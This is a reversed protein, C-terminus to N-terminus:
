IFFLIVKSIFMMNVCLSVAPVVVNPCKIKVYNEKKCISLLLLITTPLFYRGQVGAVSMKGVGTWELYLGTVVLIDMGLALVVMWTKEKWDLVQKNNEIFISALLIIIYLIIYGVPVTISLWGMYQGIFNFTYFEGNVKFDNDLVKLYNLPNSIIGSLQESSNVGASELYKEASENTYRRTCINLVLMSGCCIVLTLVALIIIEKKPMEKKHKPIILAIGMLPLYTIKSLGVFASLILFIIKEYKLIEEKKFALYLVYSIFLIITANMLSDASFATAQQMMMPIMLYTTLLIKGFPIKKIAYYGLILVIIFNVLRALLLGVFINLSLLRAAFLGIAYGIFFVFAYGKSPSDVQTTKNYDKAEESDLLENLVNYKTLVTERNISMIEPVTTKAEGNEDIKTILIGGSIEYARWLHSSADPTYTPLMFVIFSIGVPIAFNLFMNEIKYKDQICNYILSAFALITPIATQMLIKKSWYGEYAKTTILNYICIFFVLMIIFEIPYKIKNYIYKIKKAISKIEIMENSKQEM